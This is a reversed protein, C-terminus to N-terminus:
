ESESMEKGNSLQAFMVCFCITMRPPEYPPTDVAWLTRLCMRGPKGSFEAYWTTRTLGVVCTM